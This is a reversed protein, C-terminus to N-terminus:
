LITGLAIADIDGLFKYLTRGKKRVKGYRLEFTVKGHGSWCLADDM